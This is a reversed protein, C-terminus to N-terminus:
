GEVIAVPAPRSLEQSRKTAATVAEILASRFGNAELAALGAITTGGPSAVADKLQAPHQGTALVMEAAGAMTRAALDQALARPLGCRVGGDAMAEIAAFVYAPGSGSLGTVADMLGEEVKHVAGASGFLAEIFAHDAATTDDEAAYATVGKGILAPTNPMIRVIRSGRPLYNALQHLTVGAAVSMVLKNGMLGPPLDMFLAQIDKPKVAVLVAEAQSAVDNASSTFACGLEGLLAEIPARAVDCVLIDRGSVIGSSTIGRLLAQGMKGCGILALRYMPALICRIVAGRLGIPNPM